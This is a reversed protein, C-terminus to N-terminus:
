DGSLTEDECIEIVEMANELKYKGIATRSLEKLYAGVGLKVGLDHVLSRIYTGKSCHVEFTVEPLNMKILRFYKITVKRAKLEINKGQMAQSYARKGKIKIASHAPPIQEMEGSLKLVAKEIKNKAVHSWQQESDFDTELDYSPTTKGIVFKGIYEKDLNQFVDIEKTKKGTCIILLGTALPDLTGAHGVKKLKRCSRIKKVVDFSTWRYPKNVLFVNEEASNM